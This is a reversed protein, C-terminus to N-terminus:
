HPALAWMVLLCWSPTPCVPQCWLSLGSLLVWFPNVGGYALEEMHSAFLPTFFQNFHSFLFLNLTKNSSRSSKADSIFQMIHLNILAIMRFFFLKPQSIYLLTFSNSSNQNWYCLRKLLLELVKIHIKPSLSNSTIVNTNQQLKWLSTM